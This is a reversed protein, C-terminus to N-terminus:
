LFDFITMQEAPEDEDQFNMSVINNLIKILRDIPNNYSIQSFSSIYQKFCICQYREDDLKKVYAIETGNYSIVYNNFLSKEAAFGHKQITSIM